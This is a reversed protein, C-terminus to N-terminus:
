IPPEMMPFCSGASFVESSGNREVTQFEVSNCTSFVSSNHFIIDQFEIGEPVKVYSNFIAMSTTLKGILFPPDKWLSSGQFHYPAGFM